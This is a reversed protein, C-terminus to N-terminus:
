SNRVLVVFYFQPALFYHKQIFDISIQSVFFFLFYPCFIMSPIQVFHSLPSLLGSFDPMM